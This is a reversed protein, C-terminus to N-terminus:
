KAILQVQSMPLWCQRTDPLEILGWGQRQEVLIFELGDHLSENFANPHAYGPGKKGFVADVVVAGHQEAALSKQILWASVVVLVITSVTSAIMWGRQRYRLTLLLLGWFIWNLPVVCAKLWVVPLKQWWCRADPVDNLTM